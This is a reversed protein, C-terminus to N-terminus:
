STRFSVWDSDHYPDTFRMNENRDKEQAESKANTYLEWLQAKLTKAGKGTILSASFFALRYAICMEADASITELPVDTTIMEAIALEQSTLVVKETGMVRVNVPIKTQPTDPGQGSNQVVRRLFACNVPYKYAFNWADTPQVTILELQVFTSMSDLDMDALAGVFAANWNKRLVRVANGKDTDAETVETSLLLAELALNFISEKSAM